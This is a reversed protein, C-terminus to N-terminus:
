ELDSMNISYESLLNYFGDRIEEVHQRSGEDLDEYKLKNRLMSDFSFLVLYADTASIARKHERRESSETLNFELIAKV